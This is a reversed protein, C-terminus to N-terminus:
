SLNGVAPRTMQHVVSELERSSEATARKPRAAPWTGDALFREVSHELGLVSVFRRAPPLGGDTRIKDGEFENIRGASVYALAHLDVFPRCDALTTPPRKREGRLCSLLARLNEMQADFNPLPMLEIRGDNWRILVHKHTIYDLEALEFVLTERHIEPGSCAHSLAIRLPVGKSTEAELFVTDAGEIGHARWLSAMVATPRAWDDMGGTGAWHLLNHVHHSLGNGLCSDLLLRGDDGVLRGAWGNRAYYAYSRPWWGLLRASKLRGFDGKIVRSKLRCRMPEAIFNFGVLTPVVAAADVAIMEELELPDLTPPKELYAALGRRIVERHMEAHLPIPTPIIVIDLGGAHQDLMSIYDADVTVGREDLRWKEREESFSDAAPDCTCVLRAEKTKEMQLLVDHHRAAYGGMGIIAIRPTIPKM